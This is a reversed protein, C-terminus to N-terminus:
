LYDDAEIFILDDFDVSKDDKYVKRASDLSPYESIALVEGGVYKVVVLVM